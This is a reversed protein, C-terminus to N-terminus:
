GLLGPQRHVAVVLGRFGCAAGSRKLWLALAVVLATFLLPHPLQLLWVLGDIMTKLVVSLWDFVFGATDILWDVGQKAWKGVPIKTGNRVADWISLFFEQFFDLTGV